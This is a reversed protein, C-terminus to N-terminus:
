KIKVSSSTLRSFTSSEDWKQFCSILLSGQILISTIIVLYVTRYNAPVSYLVMYCTEPCIPGRCGVTWIDVKQPCITQGRSDRSDPAWSDRAWSDLKGPGFQGGSLTWPGVTLPEIQSYRCCRTIGHFTMSYWADCYHFRIGYWWFNM